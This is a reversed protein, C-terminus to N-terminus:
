RLDSTATGQGAFRLHESGEDCRGVACLARGFLLRIGADDACQDVVQELVEIVRLPDPSIDTHIRALNYAADCYGPHEELAREYWTAAGGYDERSRYAEAENFFAQADPVKLAPLPRVVVAAVFAVIVSVVVRRGRQWDLPRAHIWRYWAVLAAAAYIILVAVAPMRFRANIFFPVVTAAYVVAFALLLSAARRRGGGVVVGALALPLVVWFRLTALSFISSHRTVFEIVRNNSVEHANFLIFAKYATHRLAEGPASRIYTWAKGYWYDSIERPTADVRGLGERAVRVQASHAGGRDPRIGPAAATVGDSQPNNGIYFNFGGNAAVLVLDGDALYNHLTVPAIPLAVGAAFVIAATVAQRTKGSRWGSAVTWVWVVVVFPLVTPRAIASFGLTVGAAGWLLKRDDAIARLLLHLGLLDLFVILTVVLLENAFYVYLGYIASLGLAVQAVTRDFVRGAIRFILWCSAVSLVIQLLKAITQSVGFVRYVLGLIWPYLPAQFFTSGGSLQGHAVDVATRHYVESDLTLSDAYPSAQMELFYVLRWVLAVVLLAVVIL